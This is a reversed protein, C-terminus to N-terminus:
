QVGFTLTNSTGGGPTPNKVVVSVSGATSIDAAPVYAKLQTASLYRAYVSTGNWTVVSGPVFKSGTITLQFNPTGHTLTAPALSTAVPVPNNTTSATLFMAPSQVLVVQFSPNSCCNTELIFALGNNGWQILNSATISYPGFEALSTVALPTYQSLNYSTIGPSNFFPTNGLAFVRNIAADPLVQVGSNCCTTGLVDYTGLLLGTAPNFVQGASGYILNNAFQFNNGEVYGIWEKTLVGGTSSVAIQSLTGSYYGYVTSAYPYSIENIAPTTVVNALKTSDTYFVLPGSGGYGSYDLSVAIAHSNSPSVKIDGALYPGSNAPNGLSIDIDTTFNPLTLRQVSGNGNLGVYLYNSIASLAMKTPESGAFHFGTIAGTAPNIVAISNGNVGYTSPVTAYIAQAFPDWVLASAPLDLITVTAPYTVNFTVPLSVGGPSPNSVSLEVIGAAALQATTPQIHLESPSVYTTPLNVGNWQVQAANMFNQGTLVIPSPTAGAAVATPSVNGITPDLAIVQFNFSTSGGAPPPNTVSIYSGGPQSLYSAPIQAKLQTSSVYTTVLPANQISALSSSLFGSGSLTVTTTPSNAYINPPSMSTIMPFPNGGAGQLSVNLPSSGGSVAISLSASRASMASPTFTMTMVCYGNGPIAGVCPSSSIVFDGSNTGSITISTVNVLNVTTNDVYINLQSPSNLAVTGFQIPNPYVAIPNQAQALSWSLVMCAVVVTGRLLSSM